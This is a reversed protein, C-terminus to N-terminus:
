RKDEMLFHFLLHVDDPDYAVIEIDNIKAEKLLKSLAVYQCLKSKLNLRDGDPTILEVVGKCQDLVSFFGDVNDLNYIKM